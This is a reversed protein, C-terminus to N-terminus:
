WEQQRAEPPQHFGSGPPKGYLSALPNIPTGAKILDEAKLSSMSYGLAKRDRKIGLATVVVEDLGIDQSAMKVNIVSRDNVVEEVTKM